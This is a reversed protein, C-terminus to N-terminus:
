GRGLRRKKKPPAADEAPDVGATADDAPEWAGPGLDHEGVSDGAPEAGAEAAAQDARSDAGAEDIEVVLVETGDAAMAIGVTEVLAAGETVPAADRATESAGAGAIADAGSETRQGEAGPLM